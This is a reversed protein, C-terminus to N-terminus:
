TGKALEADIVKQFESFPQAGSLLKGNIFFAPTGSVGAEAGAATDKDVGAKMSGSDLCQDFKAQDLGISAAHKKLDDISLAQQNAFLQKHMEWFKGQENACMSAEAAKPANAHFSLPFHRFVLKVKGAYKEMVQDVSAEARSCFPCQFDSFEVITVKADNPGKAPGTAAVQVRPEELLLQYHGKTKLEDFIAMAAERQKDKQLFSIIQGRMSELTSGPPMKDKNEDWVKQIEAEPPPAIKAELQSKIWEEDSKGAKAGEAKALAEVAMQEAAQQRMEIKKKELEKLQPAIKADVDKLTITVDNYKAVPTNPNESGSAAAATTAPAGGGNAENKNCGSFSIVASLAAVITLALPKNM